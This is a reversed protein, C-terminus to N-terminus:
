EMKREDNSNEELKNVMGLLIDKETGQYWTRILTRATGYEDAEVAAILAPLLVSTGVDVNAVM